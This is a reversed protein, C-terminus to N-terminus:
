TRDGAIARLAAGISAMRLQFVDPRKWELPANHFDIMNEAAKILAAIEPVRASEQVADPAPTALAADIAEIAMELALTGNSDQLYDRIERKAEVLAAWLRANETHLDTMLMDEM